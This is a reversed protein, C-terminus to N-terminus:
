FISVTMIFWDMNERFVKLISFYIQYNPTYTSSFHIEAQVNQISPSYFTM